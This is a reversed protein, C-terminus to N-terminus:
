RKALGADYEVMERLLAEWKSDPSWGLDKKIRAYSGRLYPVEGPRFWREDIALLVKGTSKDIM